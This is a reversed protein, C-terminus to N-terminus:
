KEEDATQHNPDEEETSPTEGKDKLAKLEDILGKGPSYLGILGGFAAWGAKVSNGVVSPGLLWALGLGGTLLGALGWGAVNWWDAGCTANYDVIRRITGIWIYAATVLTLIGALIYLVISVWPLVAVRAAAVLCAVAIIAPVAVMAMQLLWDKLSDRSLEQEDFDKQVEDLKAQIGKMQGRSTSRGGLDGSSASQGIVVNDESVVLGGSLKEGSMFPLSGANAANTRNASIAASQKRIMALENAGKGGLKRANRVSANRDGSLGDSPGFNARSTLTEGERMRTMASRAQAIADGAQALEQASPGANPGGKNKGSDQVVFSSGSGSGGGGARTLGGNGWNRSASALTAATQGNNGELQRPAAAPNGSAPPGAPGQAGPTNAGAQATAQNIVDGLGNFQDPMNKLIEFSNGIQKNSGMGLGMEGSSLEHAKGGLKPASVPEEFTPQATFGEQEQAQRMQLEQQNALQISRSPAAKFTSGAAGDADYSGPGQAVYVVDGQEYASPPIFTNNNDSPGSLYNLAAFGAAGVVATLGAAQAVTVPLKGAKDKLWKFINM